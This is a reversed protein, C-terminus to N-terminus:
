VHFGLGTNGIFPAIQAQAPVCVYFTFVLLVTLKMLKMM